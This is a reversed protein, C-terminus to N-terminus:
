LASVLTADLQVSPSAGLLFVCTTSRATQRHHASACRRQGRRLARSRIDTTSPSQASCQNVPAQWEAPAQYDLIILDGPEDCATPM